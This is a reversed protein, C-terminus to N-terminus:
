VLPPTTLPGLSRHGAQKNAVSASCIADVNHDCLSIIGVKPKRGVPVVGPLDKTDAPPLNAIPGDDAIDAPAPTNPPCHKPREISFFLSRIYVKHFGMVVHHIAPSFAWLAMFTALVALVPYRKKRRGRGQGMGGLTRHNHHLM